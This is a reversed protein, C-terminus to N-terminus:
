LVEPTREYDAVDSPSRLMIEEVETSVWECDPTCHPSNPPREIPQPVLFILTKYTHKRRSYSSGHMLTSISISFFLPCRLVKVRSQNDGEQLYSSEVYMIFWHFVVTSTSPWVKRIFLTKRTATVTFHDCVRFCWTIQLPMLGTIWRGEFATASHWARHLASLKDPSNQTGAASFMVWVVTVLLTPPLHAAAQSQLM